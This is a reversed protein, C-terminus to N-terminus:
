SPLKLLSVGVQPTGTSIFHLVDGGHVYRAHPLFEENYTDVPAGAVPVIVAKNLGVWVEASSPYAFLARYRDTDAGPVTWTAEVGAQMSMKRGTDSFPFTDSFNTRYETM